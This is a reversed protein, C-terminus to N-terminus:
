RARRRRRRSMLGMAAVVLVGASAPEPVVGSQVAALANIYDQGFLSVSREYRAQFALSLPGVQFAFANDILAYDTTDIAGSYDFDGNIWGALDFAYGNDILAYDTTTVSGDVDADGMYTFKILTDNLAVSRGEFSTYIENGASQDTTTGDPTNASALNNQVIGLGYLVSGATTNDANAKTSSIGNGLWDFNGGNELGAKVQATLQQTSSQGTAGSGGNRRVLGADNLDVKATAAITLAGVDLASTLGAQARATTGASVTLAHGTNFADAHGAVLTGGTISTGGTYTNAAALTFSGAGSKTLGGDPTAGLAADHVLPTNIAADFGNSDIKAGGAKVNATIAGNMWAADSAGAKLLGGNLNLTKGGSSGGAVVQTATLTGGDLNVTGSIAGSEGFRVIGANMVATNSMSLTATGGGNRGVDLRGVNATGASFNWAGSTGGENIWTESGTTNNFTGGTQNFTGNSGGGAALIFNGGGTKTFSGNGSLNLAGTGGGRGFVTWNNVSVAGSDQINLQGNSGGSQGVWLEGGGQIAFIAADKVNVIGQGGGGFDVEVNGGGAKTVTANGLLNLTGGGEGRGIAMWNNNVALSANDQFTAVGTSGGGQGVWFEGASVIIKASNKVLLTGNSGNNIGVRFDGTQARYEAANSITMSSPGAGGNIDIETSGGGTKNFIGGSFDVTGAGGERGLVFWNNQNVTGGSMNFIGTGGGGPTGQGVYFEGLSNLTGASLNYTGTGNRSGLVLAFNGTRNVNFTGGTQNITGKGGASKAVHVLGNTTLVGTDSLNITGETNANDSINFDGTATQILQGTGTINIIAKDPQGNTGTSDQGFSQFNSVTTVSGGTGINVVPSRLHLSHLTVASNVNVVGADWFTQAGRLDITSNLNLTGLGRKGIAGVAAVSDGLPIDVTFSHGNDISLGGSFTTQNIPHSGFSTMFGAVPHLTGNGNFTIPATPGGLNNHNSVNLEVGGMLRVGGAGIGSNDGTLTVNGAFDGDVTLVGTGPTVTSGETINSSIVITSSNAQVRADISDVVFPGSFNTTGSGNASIIAAKYRDFEGGAYTDRTITISEAINLNGAFVTGAGYLSLTGMAGINTGSSAGTAGLGAASTLVVRGKNINTVGTYTNSQNFGLTGWAEYTDNDLTLGGSGSIIGNYIFEMGDGGTDRLTVTHNGATLVTDTFFNLFGDNGSKILNGNLTLPGGGFSSISYQANGPVEALTLNQVTIPGGLDVNYPPSPDAGVGSAGGGFIASDPITNDWTTNTGPLASDVWNPSSLPGSTWAGTGDNPVGDGPSYDWILDRAQASGSGWMFAAVAASICAVHSKGRM